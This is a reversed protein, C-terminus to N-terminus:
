EDKKQQAKLSAKLGALNEETITAVVKRLIGVFTDIEEDTYPCGINGNPGDSTALAKGEADLFVFWPIGGSKECYRKLVDKGGTMRDTDLKCLVFDKTLVPKVDKRAM